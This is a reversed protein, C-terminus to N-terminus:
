TDIDLWDAWAGPLEGFYSTVLAGVAIWVVLVVLQVRRGQGLRRLGLATLAALGLPWAPFILWGSMEFVSVPVGEYADDRYGFLSITRLSGGTGVDLRLQFLSAVLRWAILASGGLAFWGASRRGPIEDTPRGRLRQNTAALLLLSSLYIVTNLGLTNWARYARLTITNREADREIEWIESVSVGSVGLVAGDPNVAVEPFQSAALLEENTVGTIPVEGGTLVIEFMTTEDLIDGDVSREIEVDVISTIDAPLSPVYLSEHARVDQGVVAWLALGLVAILFFGASFDETSPRASQAEPALQDARTTLLRRAWWAAAFLVTVATITAAWAGSRWLEGQPGFYMTEGPVLLQWLGVGPREAARSGQWDLGSAILGTVVPSVIVAAAAYLLFIQKVFRKQRLLEGGVAAAIVWGLVTVAARLTLLLSSTGTQAVLPLYRFFLAVSLLAVLATSAALAAGASRTLRSSRTWVLGASGGVSATRMWMGSAALLPVGLAVIWATLADAAARGGALAFVDASTPGVYLEGSAPLEAAPPLTELDFDDAAGGFLTPQLLLVVMAAVVIGVRMAASRRQGRRTGDAVVSSWDAAAPTAQNPSISNTLRDELTSM